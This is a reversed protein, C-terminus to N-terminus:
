FVKCHKEEKASNIMLTEGMLERKLFFYIRDFNKSNFSSFFNSSSQKGVNLIM